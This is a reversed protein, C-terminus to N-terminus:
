FWFFVGLRIHLENIKYAKCPLVQPDKYQAQCFVDRRGEKLEKLFLIHKTVTEGFVDLYSVWRIWSYLVLSGLCKRETRSHQQDLLSVAGSTPVWCLPMTCPKEAVARCYHPERANVVLAGEPLQLAEGREGRDVLPWRLFAPVSFIGFATWWRIVTFYQQRARMAPPKDKQVSKLM